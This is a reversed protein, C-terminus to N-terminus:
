KVFSKSFFTAAAESCLTRAYDVASDCQINQGQEAPGRIVFGDFIQDTGDGGDERLGDSAHQPAKIQAGPVDYVKCSERYKEPQVKKTAKSVFCLRVYM